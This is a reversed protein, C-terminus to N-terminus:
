AFFKIFFFNVHFELEMYCKALLKIKILDLKLVSANQKITESCPCKSIQKPRFPYIGM